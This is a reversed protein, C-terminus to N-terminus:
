LDGDTMERYAIEWEANEHDFGVHFFNKLMHRFRVDEGLGDNVMMMFVPKEITQAFLAEFCAGRSLTWGPILVVADSQKIYEMDIQIFRVWEGPAGGMTEAPNLVKLGMERLKEAWANFTHKNEGLQGHMQGSLYVTSGKRIRSM